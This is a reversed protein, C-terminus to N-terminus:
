SCDLDRADRQSPDPELQEPSVHSVAHMHDPWRQQLMHSASSPLCEKSRSAVACIDEGHIYKVRLLWYLCGLLRGKIDERGSWPNRPDAVWVVNRYECRRLALKLSLVSQENIHQLMYKANSEPSVELSRYWAVIPHVPRKGTMVLSILSELWYGYRRTWLNQSTHIILIGEQSLVRKIEKLSAHLEENSVHEVVDLLFVKDFSRDSFPLDQADALVFRTRERIDGSHSERLESAMAIAHESFDIGTSVAGISATQFVVEGRGCGVDLVRDGPRTAAIRIPLGTYRTEALGMSERCVAASEKGGTSTEFYRRDYSAHMSRSTQGRIVRKFDRYSDVRVPM